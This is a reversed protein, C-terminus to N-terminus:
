GQEKTDIKKISLKFPAQSKDKDVYGFVAEKAENTELYLILLKIIRDQIELPEKKSNEFGMIMKFEDMDEDYKLGFYFDNEKM